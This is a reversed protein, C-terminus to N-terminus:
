DQYGIALTSIDFHQSTFVNPSAFIFEIFSSDDESVFYWGNYITNLDVEFKNKNYAFNSSSISSTFKSIKTNTLLDESQIDVAFSMDENLNTNIDTYYAEDLSPTNNTNFCRLMLLYDFSTTNPSTIEMMLCEVNLEVDASFYFIISKLYGKVEQDELVSANKITIFDLVVEEKAELQVRKLASPTQEGEEEYSGFKIYKDYNNKYSNNNESTNFNNIGVVNNKFVEYIDDAETETLGFHDIYVSAVELFQKKNNDSGSKATTYLNKVNYEGEQISFNSPIDEKSITTSYDSFNNNGVLKIKAIEVAFTLSYKGIYNQIYDNVKQYTYYKSRDGGFLNYEWKSFTFDRNNGEVYGSGFEIGIFGKEIVNYNTNMLKTIFNVTNSYNGSGTPSYNNSGVKGGLFVFCDDTQIIYEGNSSSFYVFNLDPINVGLISQIAVALLENSPYLRLIFSCIDAATLGTGNKSLTLNSISLMEEFAELGDVQLKSSYSAYCMKNLEQAYQKQTDENMNSDGLLSGLPVENLSPNNERKFLLGDNNSGQGYSDIFSTLIKSSLNITDDYIEEGYTKSFLGASLSAYPKYAIAINPKNNEDEENCGAFFVLPMCLVLALFLCCIKKIFRKKVM